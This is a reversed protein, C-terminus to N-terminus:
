RKSYSRPMVTHLWKLPAAESSYNAALYDSIIKADNPGIAGYVAIMKQVEGEWQKATLHPQIV